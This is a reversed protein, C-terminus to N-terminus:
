AHQRYYVPFSHITRFGCSGYLVAARKNTATVALSLHVFGQSSLDRSVAEILARGVGRGQYEPLVSIQGVHGTRDFIKSVIAIGVITGSDRSIAVKSAFPLFEGCWITETLISLLDACGEESAYQSNIKRDDELRYSRYIVRAARNFDLDTWSRIQFSQIQFDDVIQNADSESAEVSFSGIEALMFNREFRNFGHYVFAADAAANGFNVSQCEIRRLRPTSDVKKLIAEVILEDAGSSRWEPSIYIDGISCRSGEMVYFAFGIPNNEDTVILGPLGGDRFIDKLLATAGTYDWWLKEAWEACQERLLADLLNVNSRTLTSIRLGSKIAVSM